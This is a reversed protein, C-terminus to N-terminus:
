DLDALSKIATSKGAQYDKLGKEVLYDLAGAEKGKLYYTPIAQERLKQYEKLSLVVVGGQKQIKNKSITVISMIDINAFDFINTLKFFFDGRPKGRPSKELPGITWPDQVQRGAPLAIEQRGRVPLVRALRQRVM